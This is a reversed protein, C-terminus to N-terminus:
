RSIVVRKITSQQGSVLKVFYVGNAYAGLDLAKGTGNFSETHLVQGIANMLELKNVGETIATRNELYLMATAPNPYVLWQDDDKNLDKM